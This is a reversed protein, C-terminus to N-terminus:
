AHRCLQSPSVLTGDLSGFFQEKWRLDNVL